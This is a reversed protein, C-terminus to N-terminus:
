SGGSKERAKEELATILTRIDPIISPFQVEGDICITPIQGVGLRAMHGLGDRTTIKHERIVVKDGLREAAQQVAGVMYQCPACSASDLTVVDVIVQKERRYDPLEIEEFTEPPLDQAAARAVQRQYEDHVMLAAAQLNAEPTAYPLDCGPALVFGHDGGIDICRVADRSADAGTGLLLVTTLKLNGGFSKGSALALERLQELDINEDVSVNDCRTRCMHELNRTANGCVFFSSVGGRERVHDFIANAHATVFQAFHDPSIQSTMPDVVAIVDAGNDLYFEATRRGIAACQDLVRTVRDPADFMELFIDTGMLHLALTFPGTILGYFAVEDGWTQKLRHMAQAVLPYRGGSVDFPPLEHSARGGLPHSV